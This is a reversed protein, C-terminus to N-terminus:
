LEIKLMVEGRQKVVSEAGVCRASEREVKQRARITRLDAEGVGKECEERRQKWLGIKDVVSEL